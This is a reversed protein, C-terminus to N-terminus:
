TLYSKVKNYLLNPASILYEDYLRNFSDVFAYGSGNYDGMGIHKKKFIEHQQEKPVSCLMLLQAIFRAAYDITTDTINDGSPMIANLCANWGQEYKTHGIKYKPFDVDKTDIIM